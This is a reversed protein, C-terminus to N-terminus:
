SALPHLHNLMGLQKIEADSCFTYGLPKRNEFREHPNGEDFDISEANRKLELILPQSRLGSQYAPHDTQQSTSKVAPPDNGVIIAWHHSFPLWSHPRFTGSKHRAIGAELKVGKYESRDSSPQVQELPRSVLYVGRKSHKRKPAWMGRYRLQNKLLEKIFPTFFSSVSPQTWTLVFTTYIVRRSVEPIFFSECLRRPLDVMDCIDFVEQDQQRRVWHGNLHRPPQRHLCMSSSIQLAALKLHHLLEIRDKFKRELDSIVRSM